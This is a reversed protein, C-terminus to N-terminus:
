KSASRTLPNTPLPKLDFYDVDIEYNTRLFSPDSNELKEIEQRMGALHKSAESNPSSLQEFYTPM